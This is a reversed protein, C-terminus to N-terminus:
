AKLFVKNDGKAAEIEARNMLCFATSLGDADAASRSLVSVESWNGGPYGTRPDLIHGVSGGADFATGLPASTAIAADTLRVERGNGDGLRVSWPTADPASGLAAIEGTNVLVNSVGNRRFLATVKDAIFGQAVGNLTMSVGPRGLRVHGYSFDVYEWGTRTRAEAVQADTPAAGNAFQRAYLSWLAQITPDFAGDTRAHLGSCISLLEVLEFAPGSLSGKRNLKSLDSDEMYLSFIKELRRIEAVAQPILSEAEPHDLIIRAEAGLAVGRWHSTTASARAGIMPLSAAGVLITLMRRRTM